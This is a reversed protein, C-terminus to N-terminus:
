KAELLQLRRAQSSSFRQNPDLKSRIERFQALTPYMQAFSEAHLCSDKALYVRGGHELVIADLRAVTDGVESGTYPLDVALTMGRRPFSLLGDSKPGLSKLVPLFSLTRSSMLAELLETVGSRATEEPLAAQYQLVGRSGYGRNWNQVSDLPYFYTDCDPFFRKSGHTRYYAENFLRLSLRNLAFNPLTFPVGLALKSAMAYPAARQRPPLEKLSAHNAQLLVSRGLARGRALTDIWAVAYDYRDDTEAMRLLLADINPIHEYNASMYATEVPRLQLHADLIVGTLGMGGTTAWFADPNQERSCVLIEGDARLLRFEKLWASMSGSRHHNKGHVDAAIAGGVSIMKTGPTVPFFFGRPLFHEIIEALSVAAQCHLVATEPDFSHMRDFRDSAIIAGHSNLSADGYSRGMGRPTVSTQPANAVVERLEDLGEPRYVDCREVPRRGWGSVDRTVFRPLSM